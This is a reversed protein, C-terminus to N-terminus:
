PSSDTITATSRTVTFNVQGDAAGACPIPGAGYITIEPSDAVTLHAGQPHGRFWCQDDQHFSANATMLYRGDPLGTRTNIDPDLSKAATWQPVIILAACSGLVLVATVTIAAIILRKARPSRPGRDPKGTPYVGFGV